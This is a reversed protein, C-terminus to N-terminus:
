KLAERVAQDIDQLIDERMDKLASRLFSRTPMHIDYAKTEHETMFNSRSQKVFRGGNRFEGKADLARYVKSIRAPMHIVGGYEHIAAYKVATSVIGTVSTADSTVAQSISRQLRGTKVNLVQGQLKDTVVHRQLRITLDRIKKELATHARSPLEGFQRSVASPLHVEGEIKM